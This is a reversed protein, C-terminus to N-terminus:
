LAFYLTGVLKAYIMLVSLGNAGVTAAMAAMVGMPAFAMVKGVFEFMIEALSELVNMIPRAKEGASLMAVAFFVSFVVLQLIEGEAMAKVVSTPVMHVLTDWLTHNAVVEVNGTIGSLDTNQAAGLLDINLGAGPQLINAVLMGIILAPITAMEF